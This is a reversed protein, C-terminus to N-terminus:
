ARGQPEAFIGVELKFRAVDVPDQSVLRVDFIAAEIPTGSATVGKWVRATHNGTCINVFEETMDIIIRM